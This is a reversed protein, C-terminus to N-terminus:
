KIEGSQADVFFIRVEGGSTLVKIRYGDRGDKHASEAAMIRGDIQEKVVAVAEDLSIRKAEALILRAGDPPAADLTESFAQGALPLMLVIVLFYKM